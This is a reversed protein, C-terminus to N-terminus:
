KRVPHDVWCRPVIVIRLGYPSLLLVGHFLFGRLDECNSFGLSVSSVLFFDFSFDADGFVAVGLPLFFAVFSSLRDLAQLVFDASLSSPFATM